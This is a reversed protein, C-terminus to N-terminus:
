YSGINTLDLVGPGAQWKLLSKNRKTMDGENMHKAVFINYYNIDDIIIFLINLIFLIIFLIFLIIYFLYNWKVTMILWGTDNPIITGVPIKLKRKREREWGSEM